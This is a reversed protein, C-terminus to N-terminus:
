LELPVGVPLAVCVPVPVACGVGEEVRLALLVSDALGVPERLAPALAEVDLLTDKLLLPM